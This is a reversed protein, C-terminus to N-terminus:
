NLLQATDIIEGNLLLFEIDKLHDLDELPNENLILINATYGKKIVGNEWGFAKEFNTTAAAITERKTLGMRHLLNLETHLSIGPMTGWVDTGSGALYKAGNKYYVPEITNLENMILNTYANQELSDVKHNGTKSDAPRNIDEPNLISSVTEDWPNKHDPIDLYSLSLTPIIFSNSQGLNKAHEQLPPYDKKLQTLFKYYTWKPSDLENSFPENAISKAMERSAVDLSYRTTHVFAHIGMDMGEKYTTNGMEGITAMNLQKAKEIAIQIQDPTLGYMLLLVDYGRAKLTDIESIMTETSMKELGVGELRYMNPTPKGEGYFDGRRGGDVSIINTVGMYLYANCYSQNNIAAFGDFLGPIIYKDSADIIKTHEPINPKDACKGVWEIQDDKILLCGKVIDNTTSGLNDLDLITANELLIYNSDTSETVISTAKQEKCSIAVICLVLFSYRFFKM